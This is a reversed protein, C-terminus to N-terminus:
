RGSGSQPVMALSWAVGLLSGHADRRWGFADLLSGGVRQPGNECTYALDQEYGFADPLTRDLLNVRLHSRGRSM